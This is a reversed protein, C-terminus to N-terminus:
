RAYKEILSKDFSDLGAAVSTHTTFVNGARTAWLAESFSVKNKRMFSIARALILFSAHGENIHCVDVKIDMAELARWGGAGLVLEQLLRKEKGPDYLDSTTARDWPSNLPDNSDLLYLDVKGVQAKWVRLYLDRGPLPLKIRLRSGDKNRVPVIPLILPDNYPFTETQSGDNALVQHFYGQQYLLGIGILSPHSNNAKLHFLLANPQM